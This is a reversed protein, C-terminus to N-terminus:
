QSVIKIRPSEITVQYGTLSYLQVYYTKNGPHLFFSSSSVPAFTQATTTMESGFVIEDKNPGAVLRAFAMGNGDKLMMNATLTAQTNPPYKSGDVSASLTTITTYTQSTTSGTSGLPVYTEGVGPQATPAATSEQKTIKEVISTKPTVNALANKVAEDVMAQIEQPKQAIQDKITQASESATGFAEAWRAPLNDVRRKLIGLDNEVKTFKFFYFAGGIILILLLPPLLKFIFRM